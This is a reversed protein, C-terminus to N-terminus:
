SVGLCALSGAAPQTDRLFRAPVAAAPSRPPTKSGALALGQGAGMPPQGQEEKYNQAHCLAAGLCDQDALELELAPVM